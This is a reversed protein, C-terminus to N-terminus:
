DNRDIKVLETALRSLMTEAQPNRRFHKGDGPRFNLQTLSLFMLLPKDRPKRLEEVGCGFWGDLSGIGALSKPGIIVGVLTMCIYPM